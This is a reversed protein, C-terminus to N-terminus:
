RIAMGSTMWAAGFVRNFLEQHFCLILIALTSATMAGRQIDKFAQAKAESCLRQSHEEHDTFVYRISLSSIASLLGKPIDSTEFKRYFSDRELFSFVSCPYVENFFADILARKVQSTALKGFMEDRPAILLRGKWGSLTAVYPPQPSDHPGGDSSEISERIPGQKKRTVDAASSSSM